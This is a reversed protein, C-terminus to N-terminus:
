RGGRGPRPRAALDILKRLEEAICTRGTGAATARAKHESM